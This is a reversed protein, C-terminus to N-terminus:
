KATHDQRLRAAADATQGLTRSPASSARGSRSAPCPAGPLRSSTGSNVGRLKLSVKLNRKSLSTAFRTCSGSNRSCSPCSPSLTALLPATSAAAAPGAAAPSAASSRPLAEAMPSLAAAEPQLSPPKCCIEVKSVRVGLEESWLPPEEAGASGGASGGVSSNGPTTHQSGGNGSVGGQTGSPSSGGAGCCGAGKDSAPSRCRMAAARCHSAMAGGSSNPGVCRWHMSGSGGSREKTDM